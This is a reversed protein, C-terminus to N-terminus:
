GPKFYRSEARVVIQLRGHGIIYFIEKSSERQKFLSSSIIRLKRRRATGKDKRQISEGRRNYWALRSGKSLPSGGPTSEWANALRLQGKEM